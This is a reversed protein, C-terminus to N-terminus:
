QAVELRVDLTGTPPSRFFYIAVALGTVIAATTAILVGKPTRESQPQLPLPTSPSGYAALPTFNASLAILFGKSDGSPVCTTQIRELGLVGARDIGKIIQLTGPPSCWGKDKSWTTIGLNSLRQSQNLRAQRAAAILAPRARSDPRWLPNWDVLRQAAELCPLKGMQCAATLALELAKQAQKLSMSQDAALDMAKTQAQAFRAEDLATWVEDFPDSAGLLLAVFLLTVNM